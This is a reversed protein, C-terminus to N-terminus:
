IKLLVAAIINEVKTQVHPMVEPTRVNVRRNKMKKKEENKDAAQM